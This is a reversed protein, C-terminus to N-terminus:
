LAIPSRSLAPHHKDQLASGFGDSTEDEDGSKRRLERSSRVLFRVLAGEEEAVAPFVSSLALVLAVVLLQTHRLM